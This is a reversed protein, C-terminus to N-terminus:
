LPSRDVLRYICFKGCTAICSKTPQQTIASGLLSPLRGLHGEKRIWGSVAAWSASSCSWSTNRAPGATTSRASSRACRARPTPGVLCFFLNSFRDYLERFNNFLNSFRPTALLATSVRENPDVKSGQPRQTRSDETQRERQGRRDDRSESRRPDRAKAPGPTKPQDAQGQLVHSAEGDRTKLKCNYLFSNSLRCTFHIPRYLLLM